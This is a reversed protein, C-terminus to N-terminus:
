FNIISTNITIVFSIFSLGEDTIDDIFDEPDDFNPEPEEVNGNVEANNSNFKVTDENLLDGEAM